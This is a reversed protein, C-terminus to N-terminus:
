LNGTATIIFPRGPLKIESRGFLPSGILYLDQGSVPFVGMASWVYWSSLAGSDDNGPLGGRGTTYAYKMLAHVVEATRDHRGAYIYAYMTEMDPENNMGTFRRLAYGAKEVEPDPPYELQQCPPEGYGFFQNLMDVFQQKSGCLAIRREMDHLLRFSYNWAGGEYYDSAKLRGTEKSYVNRWWGSFKMLKKYLKIKGFHQALQATAFFASALDLTHTFPYVSGQSQYVAGKGQELEYLMLNMARKWDIGQLGRYYADVITQHALASAQKDFIMPERAMVYGIPFRRNREAIELLANVIERGKEPYVSLVLPLQTKYIDWMTSFDSFFPGPEPWFPSENAMDSPKILSHYLASYFIEYQEDTGGSVQLRELYDVWVDRTTTHIQDFNQDITENLNVQAQEESRYSFGLKVEVQRAEDFHFYFGFACPQEPDIAEIELEPKFVPRTENWVGVDDADTDIEMYVYLPMSNIIVKGRASRPSLAELTVANPKADRGKYLVGNTALDVIVGSDKSQSFTYRHCCSKPAVTLEARIDPEQLRVSYYGPSAEEQDLKWRHGLSLSKLTSGLDGSFPTVRVHNYFIRMDGSGTQQFHTFGTATLDEFLKRPPGETSRDYWGYGTPYAGSYPVVSVMGFPYCAGPHTNGVQAKPWFWTAAIGEPEPLDVTGNGLFPDVSSFPDPDKEM